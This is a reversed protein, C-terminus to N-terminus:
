GKSLAEIAASWPLLIAGHRASHQRAADLTALGPWAPMTQGGALWAEIADRAREFDALTRYSAEQAFIAAAAQGIACASVRMGIRGVTGDARTALGIELTSGCTRSRADARLPFDGELPFQALQTALSLVDPTYLKAASGARM